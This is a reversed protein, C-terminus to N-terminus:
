QHQINNAMVKSCQLEKCTYVNGQLQEMIKVELNNFSMGACDATNQQHLLMMHSLLNRHILISCSHLTKQNKKQTFIAEKGFYKM